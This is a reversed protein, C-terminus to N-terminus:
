SLLPHMQQPEQEAAEPSATRLQQAVCSRGEVFSPEFGQSFSQLWQGSHLGGLGSNTNRSVFRTFNDGGSILPEVGMTLSRNSEFKSSGNNGGGMTHAHQEISSGATQSRASDTHRRTRECKEHS